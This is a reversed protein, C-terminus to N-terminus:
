ISRWVGEWISDSEQKIVLDNDEDTADVIIQRLRSVEERLQNREETMKQLEDPNM